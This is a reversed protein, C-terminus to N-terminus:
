TARRTGTWHGFGTTSASCVPRRSQPVSPPHRPRPREPGAVPGEGPPGPGHAPFRSEGSPVSPPSGPGRPRAAPPTVVGPATDGRERRLGSSGVGAAERRNGEGGRGGCGQRVRPCRAALGPARVRGLGPGRSGRSGAGAIGPARRARGM